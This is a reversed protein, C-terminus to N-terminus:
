KSVVFEYAVFSPLSVVKSTVSVSLKSAGASLQATADGSLVIEFLGDAVLEAEGTAIAENNANYLIYAVKEIDEAPYAEDEFTVDVDFAAEEGARVQLPGEVSATVLKPEGFSSWLDSPFIYDAFYSLTITGEVPYVQEVFYPGTGIFLHKRANYFSKLNDYREAAEEATLFESMTPAYPIYQEAIAQDLYKVQTELSPGAIFSTWEIEKEGSKDRSFALEGNEEAMVAPTMGHWSMMGNTSTAPNYRSPFWDTLSLEADTAYQDDYTEIILPDTSVIRVGKFHTLYTEVGEALSEDYIKSEPKGGDFTMIMTWVFDAVSMKSGDHWTTDWLEPLYYVTSKAKTTVGEPYKEDATIFKQNEADWDVWADGPVTIEDSFQLDVWDLSKHIPLGAEAVLEAREVLKPLGLGTYPDFVIGWDMTANQIMADDTWNSGAIPNWPQVLIGSQAIRMQGGEQGEFRITYPWLRASAIGGALDYAVEVNSKYTSFSVNENVWVGWWSEQMSLELCTKFLEAREELSTFSNTFLKDAPELLEPSPDFRQFLPIAQMKGTNYQVFMNGDDRSIAQSIWGATYYHFKCSEVDQAAWIPGADVRTKEQRDVTFGLAELQNAFYNGIEKRKDETRILGILVVPKNNYQWKGDSGLTAGMAAMEENIVSKAKDLDYAYKTEIASIIDAYRAYDVFAGTLATYKPKGLGGMIEQSIYNRDIAWNMAERIKANTFPNLLNTDACSVTNFLIQNNSGYNNAYKLNANNKVNEYVVSDEVSVAYVDIAGAELQAVAPEAEAIATFVIKDLWGGKRDTRPTEQVPEEAPAETPDTAAQGGNSPQVAEETAAPAEGAPADVPSVTTPTSTGCASLIMSAIIALSMLVLLKRKM